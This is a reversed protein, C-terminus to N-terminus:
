RLEERSVGEDLLQLAEKFKRQGLADPPNLYNSRCPRAKWPLAIHRNRQTEKQGSAPWCNCEVCAVVDM